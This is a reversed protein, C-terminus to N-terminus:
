WPWQQNRAAAMQDADAPVIEPTSGFWRVRHGWGHKLTWAQWGEPTSAILTGRFHKLDTDVYLRGPIGHLLCIDALLDNEQATPAAHNGALSEVRATTVGLAQAIGVISWLREMDGWIGPLPDKIKM